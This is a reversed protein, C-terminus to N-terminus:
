ELCLYWNIYSFCASMRMSWANGLAYGSFHTVGVSHVSKRCRNHNQWYGADIRAPCVLKNTRSTTPRLFSFTIGNQWFFAVKKERIWAYTSRNRKKGRRKYSEASPRIARRTSWIRGNSETRLRIDIRTRCGAVFSATNYVFPASVAMRFRTFHWPLNLLRIINSILSSM